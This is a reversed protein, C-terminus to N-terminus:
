VARGVSRRVMQAYRNPARAFQAAFAARFRHGPAYGVSAAAQAISRGTRIAEAAREMRRAAVFAHPTLGTALSFMRAFHHRSVAAVDALASLRLDGDLHADVFETVRDLRRADLGRVAKPRLRAGVAELSRSLANRILQELELAGLQPGGLADARVRVALAFLAPDPSNWVREHEAVEAARLDEVVENRLWSAPRVEVFESPGDTELFLVPEVGVAGGTLARIPREEIRGCREVVTRGHSRFAFDLAFPASTLGDISRRGVRNTRGYTAGAASWNQRYILSKSM